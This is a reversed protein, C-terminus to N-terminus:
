LESNWYKLQQFQLKGILNLVVHTDHKIDYNFIDNYYRFFNFPKYTSLYQYRTDYNIDLNVIYNYHRVSNFTNYCTSITCRWSIYASIISCM